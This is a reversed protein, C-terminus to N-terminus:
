AKTASLPLQKLQGFEDKKFVRVSISTMEKYLSKKVAEAAASLLPVDYEEAANVFTWLNEASYTGARSRGLLDEIISTMMKAEESEEAKEQLWQKAYEVGAHIGDDYKFTENYDVVVKANGDKTKFSFSRQKDAAKGLETKMKMLPELKKISQQKFVVIANSLTEVENLMEIVASDEMEILALRDANRKEAAAKDEAEFQAKLQAKEEPTMKLLDM